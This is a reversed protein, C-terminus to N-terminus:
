KRCRRPNSCVNEHSQKLILLLIGIKNAVWKLNDEDVVLRSNRQAESGRDEVELPQFNNM